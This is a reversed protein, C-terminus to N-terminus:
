SGSDMFFVNYIYELGCKVWKAAPCISYNLQYLISTYYKQIVVLDLEEQLHVYNVGIQSLLNSIQPIKIVDQFSINHIMEIHVIRTTDWLM